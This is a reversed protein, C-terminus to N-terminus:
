SIGSPYSPFSCVAVIDETWGHRKGSSEVTLRGRSEEDGALGSDEFRGRNRNSPTSKRSPTNAVESLAPRKRPIFQPPPMQSPLRPYDEELRKHQRGSVSGDLVSSLDHRRGPGQRLQSRAPSRASGGQVTKSGKQLPSPNQGLLEEEKKSIFGHRKLFQDVV